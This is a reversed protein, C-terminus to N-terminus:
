VLSAINSIMFLFYPYSNILEGTGSVDPDTLTSANMSNGRESTGTRVSGSEPISRLMADGGVPTALTTVSSSPAVSGRTAFLRDISQQMVGTATRPRTLGSDSGPLRYSSGGMGGSGISQSM